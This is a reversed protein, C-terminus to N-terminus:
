RDLFALGLCLYFLVNLIINTLDSMDFMLILIILARSFQVMWKKKYDEKRGVDKDKVIKLQFSIYIKALHVLENYRDENVKQARDKIKDRLTM